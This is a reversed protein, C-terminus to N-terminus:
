LVQLDKLSSDFATQRKDSRNTTKSIQRPASFGGARNRATRHGGPIPNFNSINWFYIHAVNLM